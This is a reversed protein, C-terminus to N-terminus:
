RRRQLVAARRAISLLARHCILTDPMGTRKCDLETEQLASLSRELDGQSWIRLQHRITGTRKFHIPPRARKVVEDASQGAAIQGAFSHLRQIHSSVSRLITIAPLGAAITREFTSDLDNLAGGAVVDALSEFASQPPGALCADIAAETITLAEGSEASGMYLHLKELEQRTVGRDAGLGEILRQKAGPEIKLNTERLFKGVVADVTSSDDAYCPVAAANGADEFLKRLTSRPNLDGAEVLIFADCKLHGAAAADLVDRVVKAASESPQRVRVIRAGPILALSAAEDALRAPDSKLEADTLDTLRMPDPPSGITNAILIRGRERVLGEDPGYILAAVHGDNPKSLYGDTQQPKIRM